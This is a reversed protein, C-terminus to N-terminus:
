LQQCAESRPRFVLCATPGLRWWSTRRERPFRQCFLYIPPECAILCHNATRCTAAGVSASAFGERPPLAKWDRATNRFNVRGWLKWSGRCIRMSSPSLRWCTSSERRRVFTASLYSEYSPVRAPIAVLIFSAKGFRARFLTLRELRNTLARWNAAM